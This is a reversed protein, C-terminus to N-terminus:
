SDTRQRKDVQNGNVDSPPLSRKDGVAAAASDSPRPNSTKSGEVPTTPNKPIQQSKVETSVPPTSQLLKDDDAQNSFDMQENVIATTENPEIHQSQSPKTNVKGTEESLTTANTHASETISQDQNEKAQPSKDDNSASAPPPKTGTDDPIVKSETSVATPEEKPPATKAPKTGNEGKVMRGQEKSVLTPAESGMPPTTPASTAKSSSRRSKSPVTAARTDVVGTEPLMAERIEYEEMNQESVQYEAYAAHRDATFKVHYWSAPLNTQSSVFGPQGTSDVDTASIYGMVVGEQELTVTRRASVRHETRKFIRRGLLPDDGTTRWPPDNPALHSTDLATGQELAALAAKKSNYATGDPAILKWKNRGGVFAQWGEPFGAKAATEAPDGSTSNATEQKTAKGPNSAGEGLVPRRVFTQDM